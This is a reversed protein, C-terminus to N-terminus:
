GAMTRDMWRDRQGSQRETYGRIQKDMKRDMWRGTQRGKWRDTNRDM